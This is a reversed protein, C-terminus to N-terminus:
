PPLISGRDHLASLAEADDTPDYSGKQEQEQPHFVAGTGDEEHSVVRRVGNMPKMVEGFGLRECRALVIANRSLDVAGVFEVQHNLGDLRVGLVARQEV